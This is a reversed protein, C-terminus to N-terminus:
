GKGDTGNETGCYTRASEYLIEALQVVSEVDVWESETHLGGGRPGMIVTPIGANGLLASDEWWTHTILSSPEGRVTEAASLAIGVFPHSPDIEYPDQWQVLRVTASFPEHHETLEDLMGRIEQMVGDATQGPVTRCEVQASCSESYIFLQRGGNIVPVHMSPPGLLPHRNLSQWGTRIRNLGMLVPGMQMNADIGIEPCGGHATRGHTQIEFIGFGRHAVCVDLDSPELVFAADASVRNVLDRTGVSEHEEDAVFALIVDGKLPTDHDALAKAMGLLAAVGGKIDQAGRGWVKGDKLEGNFPDEMGAVGVTDMHVNFLLAPGSGSGARVAVVNARRNKLDHLEVPWGMDTLVAQIYLALDWEGPSGDELGPNRSDIRVVDQLTQITFTRDIM